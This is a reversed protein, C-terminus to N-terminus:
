TDQVGQEGTDRPNGPLLVAVGMGENGERLTAHQWFPLAVRLADLLLMGALQYCHQM